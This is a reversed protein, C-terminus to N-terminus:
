MVGKKKSIHEDGKYNMYLKYMTGNRENRRSVKSYVSNAPLIGTSLFVGCCSLVYPLPPMAGTIRLRAM